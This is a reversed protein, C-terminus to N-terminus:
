YSVLYSVQALFSFFYLAMYNFLSCPEKRENLIKKLKLKIM